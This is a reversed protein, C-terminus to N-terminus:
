LSWAWIIAKILLITVLAVVGGSLVAGLVYGFWRGIPGPKAGLEIALREEETRGDLITRNVNKVARSSKAAPEAMVRGAQEARERRLRAAINHLREHYAEWAKRDRTAGLYSIGTMGGLEARQNHRLAMHSAFDGPSMLFTPRVLLPDSM